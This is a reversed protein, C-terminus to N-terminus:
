DEPISEYEADDITVPAKSPLIFLTGASNDVKHNVDVREAKGLGIRDLITQAAQIKVNSQPIAYDAEMVEILKFAAKPASQALVDSALDIM